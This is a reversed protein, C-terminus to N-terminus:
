ESNAVIAAMAYRSRSMALRPRLVLVAITAAGMSTTAWLVEQHSAFMGDGYEKSRARRWLDVAYQVDIATTPSKAHPYRASMM